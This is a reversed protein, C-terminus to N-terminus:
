NPSDNNKEQMARYYGLLLPVVGCSSKLEFLKEGLTM